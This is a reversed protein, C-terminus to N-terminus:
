PRLMARAAGVLYLSGCILVAGGRGAAGRAAEVADEVSPHCEIPAGGLGARRAEDAVLAPPVARSSPPACLHVGSALPFLARMMALREKDGLVGFVLRPRVGPWASEFSSALALAGDPNHAGDLVFLPEEAVVELRGPWRASALGVPIAAEIRGPALAEGIARALAVAVAANERQHIGRLGLRLGGSAGGPGRYRLGGEGGELPPAEVVPAGIRDAHARIAALAAPRQPAIVLPVGARAVRAKESAVAELTAGLYETHDLGVRTVAAAVLRKGSVNTADLRGGLGVELIAVDVRAEAFAEFALATAAEFYTLADPDGPRGLAPWARLLRGGARELAEPDIPEGGTRIRERFSVLHPSTYLGVRLGAAELIAALFACTSGKGNTGAVIASPYRGQPGGLAACAGEIRELGMRITSQPLRSLIEEIM